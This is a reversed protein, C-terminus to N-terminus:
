EEDPDLTRRRPVERKARPRVRELEDLNHTAETMGAAEAKRLFKEAADFNGTLTYFVGLCNAYEPTNTNQVKYLYEEALETDGESLAAAAGNLNAIDDEPFQNRATLLTENFEHSGKQYSRAVDYIERQSLQKPKKRIREKSEDLTFNRVTFEIECDVRRLKPYLDRFIQRYPQGNAIARIRQERADLNYVTNIINLIENKHGIPYDALLSALGAWDEGGRGVQFLEPSITSMKTFYNRMAQARKSSLSNNFSESSEPSAYGRMEVKTVVVDPDTAIISIMENIKDLESRNNSFNPDIISKGRPFELYARGIESRRKKAEPQPEIYSFKPDIDIKLIEKYVNAFVKTGKEAGCCGTVEEKLNMKAGDMWDRYPISIKYPVTGHKSYQEISYISSTIKKQNKAFEAPPRGALRDARQDAKYRRGGKIIVKPLELEKKGAVLIPTFTHSETSGIHVNSMDLIMDIKMNIGEQVMQKPVIRIHEPKSPKQQKQTQQKQAYLTFSGSLLLLMFFRYVIKRKMM